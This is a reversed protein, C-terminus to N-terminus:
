CHDLSPFFLDTYPGTNGLEEIGEKRGENRNM